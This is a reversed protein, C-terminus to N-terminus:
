IKSLYVDFRTAGVQSTFSPKEASLPEAYDPRKVVVRGSQQRAVALLRDADNDQGVVHHLVQMDKKVQASKKKPPYMPDLYIIEANLQPLWEAADGFRYDIPLATTLCDLAKKVMIYILPNREIATVSIDRAALMFSDKLVGPTADIVTHPLKQKIKIAKLLPEKGLNANRHRYNGERFDLRLCLNYTASALQYVSQQQSLRWDAKNTLTYFGALFDRDRNDVTDDLALAALLCM